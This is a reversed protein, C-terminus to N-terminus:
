EAVFLGIITKGREPTIEGKKIEEM